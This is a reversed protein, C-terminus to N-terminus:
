ITTDDAFENVEAAHEKILKSVAKFNSYDASRMLDFIGSETTSLVAGADNARKLAVARDYARSSSIADCMLFVEFGADILDLASQLVCVHGEIGCLIIQKRGSSELEEAVEDTLMSFKMKSFIKTEKGETLSLIEPVTRGMVKPYQETIICPIDLIGSVSYLLASKKVVTEYRHIIPRFREQVDCILLTSLSPVLRPIMTRSIQASRLLGAM